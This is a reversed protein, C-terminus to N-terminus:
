GNILGALQRFRNAVEDEESIVKQSPKTSKVPKSGGGASEKITQKKIGSNGGFSEALTSYVLKIERVTQARDFTEVVKMKQGNDLVFEKFLKNTFLLKANLINVEHLKERLFEVAEKYEALEAKVDTISESFKEKKFGGKEPDETDASFQESNHNDSKGIGSTNLEEDIEDENEDLDIEVIDDEDTSESKLSGQSPEEVSRKKAGTPDFDNKTTDELDEDISEEDDEEEEGEAFKEKTHIEAGPSKYDDHQENGDWPNDSEELEQELERIIAELDLNSIDGDSEEVSVDTDEFVDDESVIPAYKVGNIEIVGEEEVEAEEEDDFSDDSPFDEGGGIEDEGGFEDEEPFEEEEESYYAEEAPIEEEAEEAGFEDEPSEDEFEEDEVEKLKASLMSQIRPKFAEELAFKANELATERVAKADAIAEKLIDSM